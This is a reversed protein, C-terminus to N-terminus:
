RLVVAMRQGQGLRDKARALRKCRNERQHKPGAVTTAMYAAPTQLRPHGASAALNAMQGGGRMQHLRM